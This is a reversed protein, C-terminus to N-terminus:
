QMANQLTYNTRQEVLAIGTVLEMWPIPMTHFTGSIWHLAM